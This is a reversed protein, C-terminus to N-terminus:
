SQQYGFLSICIKGVRYVILYIVQLVCVAICGRLPSMINGGLAVRKVCWLLAM